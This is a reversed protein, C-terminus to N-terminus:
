FLGFFKHTVNLCFQFCIEDTTFHVCALRESDPGKKRYIKRMINCPIQSFGEFSEETM